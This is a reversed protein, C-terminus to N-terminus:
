QNTLLAGGGRADIPQFRVKSIHRRNEAFHIREIFMSGRARGPQRGGGVAIM